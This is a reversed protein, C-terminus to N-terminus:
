KTKATEGPIAQTPPYLTSWWAVSRKIGEELGLIPEYGLVRRAKEINYYRACGAYTVRYRTFQVPRRTIWSFIEAFWALWLALGLSLVIFSGPPVVHGNYQYWLARPFDWFPIPQGNTIFFAQGAASLTEEALNVMHPRPNGGCAINPNAYHFFPDFRNRFIIREDLHEVEEPGRTPPQLSRAYDKAPASVDSRQLSTPVERYTDREEEGLCRVPLHEVVLRKADYTLAPVSLPGGPSLRVGLSDSALLHAHAVNGVYTWDFLNENSGIQFRTRRSSLVNFMGPLAQRDGPGFIGAPRLAVTQLGDRTNAALVAQEARAKTDNYSDMAKAPYQLREDVYKLSRGTFVVGASSTFVLKAVHNAPDQCVEIVKKTGIVNVLEYVDASLGAVPSATHYVSVSRETVSGRERTDEQANAIAKSLSAADTLDGEYYQVGPLRELPERIDFVAVAQEGRAVLAHAIHSGLFGAGGIVVHLEQSPASTSM